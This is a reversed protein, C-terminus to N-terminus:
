CRRLSVLLLVVEDVAQRITASSQNSQNVIISFVLPEYNPANIYGSLALVGSMTGTKASVVGQAPTNKLRNLLTGSVGAVPLSARYVAAYPSSAMASLTQAIADPSVLNHRSLGSGDAMVYGKPDVGLNTLAQKAAILGTQSNSDLSNVKSGLTRLLAEAYLNNSNLNAEVLLQSLPPSNIAAIEPANALQKQVEVINLRVRDSNDKIGAILLVRRLHQVFNEAPNIVALSVSEPPSNISLQGSLHLIGSLDRNLKVETPEGPKVTVSQNDVSQWQTAAMPDTWVLRLPQGIQQPLLQLTVANQNIILSGIPAGYDAQIDGWEWDPNIIDDTRDGEIALYTLQRVGTLKLQRALATLQVDTLSPDGRGVLRLLGQDTGYISTRIRYNAGLQQLAAAALLLKLNSAPIFYKDSDRSYIQSNNLKNVVIGWRAQSFQPRNTITEIAKGLQAPCIVPNVEVKAPTSPKTQAVAQEINLQAYLLLLILGIRKTTLM